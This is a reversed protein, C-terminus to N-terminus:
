GSITWGKNLAIDRDSQTLDVVGPNGTITITKGSVTALGNFIDVLAQRSLNCSAYSISVKTGNLDADSLSTCGQFTLSFNNVKGVNFNPVSTINSCFRVMGSMNTVNQTNFFPLETLSSCQYFTYTISTLKSTDFLPVATLSSCSRFMNTMTTVNSTDFLPVVTLSSCNNFMSLMNTVNSTNFQPVTTLNSCNSFMSGMNIASSTDFLPVTTLSRCNSFMSLMDTSSSFDFQPLSTLSNCGSFMQRTNTVNSTDFLPVNTLSNCGSFMAKMNTVLPFNPTGANPDIDLNTASLFMNECTEVSDFSGWQKIKYLKQIDSASGRFFKTFTGTISVDYAGATAYTHTKDSLNGTVTSSSYVITDQTGDGWDVTIDYSGSTTLPLTISENDATTRWETIFATSSEQPGESESSSTSTNFFNSKLGFIKKM